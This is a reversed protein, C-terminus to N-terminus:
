HAELPAGYAPVDDTVVVKMGVSGTAGAWSERSFDADAVAVQLVIGGLDMVVAM